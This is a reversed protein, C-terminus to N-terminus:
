ESVVPVDSLQVTLKLFRGSMWGMKGSPVLVKLWYETPDKGLVKLPTGEPFTGTIPLDRGPGSRMNLNATAVVADADSDARSANPPLSATASASSESPASSTPFMTGISQFASVVWMWLLAALLVTLATSLLLTLLRLGAGTKKGRKRLPRTDPITIQQQHDVAIRLTPASHSAAPTGIKEMIDHELLTPDYSARARVHLIPLGVSQLITDVQEDRRQRDPKTHSRDDLEIVLVPALTHPTCLVFDVAKSMVQNRYSRRFPINKVVPVLAELRVQSQIQWRGATAELLAPYFASEGATLLSEAKRFPADPNM